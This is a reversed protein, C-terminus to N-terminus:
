VGAWCAHNISTTLKVSSTRARCFAHTSFKPKAYSKKRKRLRGRYLAICLAALAPERTSGVATPRTPITHPSPAIPM